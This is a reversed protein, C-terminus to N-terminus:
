TQKTNTPSSAEREKLWMKLCRVAIVQPKVGLKAELELLRTKIDKHKKLNLTLIKKMGM